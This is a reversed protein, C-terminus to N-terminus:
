VRTKSRRFPVWWSRRRWAMWMSRLIAQFPCGGGVMYDLAMGVTGQTHFAQFPRGKYDEPVGFSHLASGSVLSQGRVMTEFNHPNLYFYDFCLRDTVAVCCPVVIGSLGNLFINRSLQAYNLAEPEFAYVKCKGGLRKAAFLSYLGINAGIDYFVDGSRVYREIWELTEPEKTTYTSARYEEIESLVELEIACGKVNCTTVQMRRIMHRLYNAIRRSAGSKVRSLLSM